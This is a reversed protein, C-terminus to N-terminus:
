RQYHASGFKEIDSSIIFMSGTKLYGGKDCIEQIARRISNDRPYSRWDKGDRGYIFFVGDNGCPPIGPCLYVERMFKAINSEPLMRALEPNMIWSCCVFTKVDRKFYEKFFQKADMLSSQVSEISMGGGGPIHIGPVWEWPTLLAEWERLDLRLVEDTLANGYPSIPTGTVTDDCIELRTTLRIGVTDKILPRFGEANLEWDDRCLAVVRRTGKDRYIAPIWEPTSQIEYELRGLRFLKGRVFLKAWDVHGLNMGPLDHHGLMYISNAGKAWLAIQQMYTVPINMSELKREVLPLCSLGVMLQFVGSNDGFVKEPLPLGTLKGQYSSVYFGYHLLQAYRQAEPSSAVIEAVIKIRKLVDPTLGTFPFYKQCFELKMFEPIGSFHPM